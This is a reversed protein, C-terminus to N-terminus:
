LAAGILQTLQPTQNLERPTDCDCCRLVGGSPEFWPSGCNHCTRM